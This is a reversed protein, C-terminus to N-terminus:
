IEIQWSHEGLRADLIRNLYFFIFQWPTISRDLAIAREYHIRNKLQFPCFSHIKHLIKFRQRSSMLRRRALEAADPLRNPKFYFLWAEGPVRFVMLSTYTSLFPGLPHPIDISTQLNVKM